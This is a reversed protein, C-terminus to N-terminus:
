NAKKAAAPVKPKGSTAHLWISLAVIPVAGCATISLREGDVICKLVCTLILGVIVAFGKKVSGATKIILGVVIGGWGQTLVPVITWPGWRAFIGEQRWVQADPSINLIWGGVIMMCGLVAMETSYLYSDRKQGQLIWETFGGGFGSLVSACLVCFLGLSVQKSVAHQQAKSASSESTSVLVGAVFVLMLALMQTRSQRKGTFLYVFLATFLMKTQNLINLVVGDLNQYAIQICYNQVLYTVSPLGACMIFGRFTWDKAAEKMRGEARLMFISGFTKAMEAALVLSGTPTGPEICRKALLPQAGFQVAHIILYGLGNNRELLATVSM